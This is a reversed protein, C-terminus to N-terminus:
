LHNWIKNIKGFVQLVGKQHQSPRKWNQSVKNTTGLKILIKGFIYIYILTSAHFLYHPRRLAELVQFVGEQHRCSTKCCKLPM